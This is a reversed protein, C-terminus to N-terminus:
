LGQVKVGASIGVKKFWGQPVEIAYRLNESKSSVPTEDLPKMDYIEMLIGDPSVYGVSLPIKTNKMWFGMKKPEKFDFLMGTGEALNDRFMLGRQMLEPTDVIEVLLKTGNIKLTKTPLQFTQASHQECGAIFSLCLVLFLLLPSRTM